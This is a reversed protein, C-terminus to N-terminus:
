KNVKNLLFYNVDFIFLLLVEPAMVPGAFLNPSVTDEEKSTGIFELFLGLFEASLISLVESLVLWDEILRCIESDYEFPRLLFKPLDRDINLDM